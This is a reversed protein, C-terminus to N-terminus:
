KEDWQFDLMQIIHPHRLRKLAEIEHVISNVTNASLENKLICKVAVIQKPSSQIFSLFMMLVFFLFYQYLKM